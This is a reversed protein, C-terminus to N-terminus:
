LDSLRATGPGKRSGSLSIANAIMNGSSIKMTTLMRTHINQCAAEAQGQAEHENIKEAAARASMVLHITNQQKELAMCMGLMAIFAVLKKDSGKSSHFIQQLKNLVVSYINHELRSFFSKLQRDTMCLSTNIDLNTFLDAYSSLPRLTSPNNEGAITFTYSM